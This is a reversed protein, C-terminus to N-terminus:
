ATRTPERARAARYIELGVDAFLHPLARVAARNKEKDAEGLENWSVICPHTRATPDKPGPAHRWGQSRREDLWREHELRAMLEVEDDAFTLADADADALPGIEYGIAELRASLEAAQHRNSDKLDETLDAWPVLTRAAAPDPAIGADQASRVYESHLARALVETAGQTVLDVLCTRDLFAFGRLRSSARPVAAKRPEPWACAPATEADGLLAAVGGAHTLRVVIPMLTERTRHALDLATALARSDDDLCVYAIGPAGPGSTEETLAEGVTAISSAEVQYACLHCYRLVDPSRSAVAHLRADADRDIVSVTLRGDRGSSRHPWTRALHVILSEGLRGLGVVLVHNTDGPPHDRLLARAAAEYINFLILTTKGEASGELEREKLLRYLNLDAVHILCPLAKDRRDRALVRANMAVEANAGEDGCVAILYAARGVHAEALVAPDAADGTLVIAGAERARDVFPNRADNEVVVVRRRLSAFAEALLLGKRGLGCIVVHDRFFRLRLLMMQQRFLLAIAALATWVAVAPALFRAVELTMPVPGPVSGSELVFLQLTLYAIRTVSQPEGRAEFYAVFGFHGLIAAVIWVIGVLIWGSDALARRRRRAGPKTM